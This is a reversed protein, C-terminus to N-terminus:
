KWDRSVGEADNQGFKRFMVGKPFLDKIEPLQPIAKWQFRNSNLIPNASITIIVDNVSMSAGGGVVEYFTSDVQLESVMERDRMLHYRIMGQFDSALLAFQLNIARVALDMGQLWGERVAEQWIQIEREVKPDPLINAYRIVPKEREFSVYDKWTPISTVFRPNSRIDYVQEASRIQRGNPRYVTKSDLQDIVPPLVLYGQYPIVIRRFDFNLVLSDGKSSVYKELEGMAWYKGGQIGFSIGKKRLLAEKFGEQETEKKIDMGSNLSLLYRLFEPDTPQKAMAIPSAILLLLVIVLRSIHM